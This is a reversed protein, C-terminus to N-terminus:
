RCVTAKRKPHERLIRKVQKRAPQKLQSLDAQRGRFRDDDKGRILGLLFWVACVVFAAAQLLAAVSFLVLV